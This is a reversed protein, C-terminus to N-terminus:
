DEEPQEVWIVAGVIGASLERTAGNFRPDHMRSAVVPAGHPTHVLKTVVWVDDEIEVFEGIAPVRAFPLTTNQSQDGKKRNVTVYVM